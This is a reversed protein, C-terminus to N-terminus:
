VSLPFFTNSLTSDYPHVREKYGLFMMRVVDKKIVKIYEKGKRHGCCCGTTTIGLSWLWKLEDVICKDVVISSSTIQPPASLNVEHDNYSKYINVNKDTYNKINNM